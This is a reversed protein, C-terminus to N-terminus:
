PCGGQPCTNCTATTGGYLSFFVPCNGACEELIPGTGCSNEICDVLLAGGAHVLCIQGEDCQTGVGSCEVACSTGTEVTWVRGSCTAIARGGEPCADYYCQTDGGCASGDAPVSPPCPSPPSPACDKPQVCGEYCFGSHSVVFAPAECYPTPAGCSVNAGNCDALESDACFAFHACCGVGACGCVQPDEFVSHCDTRAECEELTEVM